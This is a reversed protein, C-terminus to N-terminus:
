RFYRELMYEIRMNMEQLSGKAYFIGLEARDRAAALNNRLQQIHDVFEALLKQESM